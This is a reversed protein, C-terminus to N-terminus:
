KRAVTCNFNRTNVNKDVNVPNPKREEFDMVNKDKGFFEKKDVPKYIGYDFKFITNRDRKKNTESQTMATKAGFGKSSLDNSKSVSNSNNKPNMNMVISYESQVGLTKPSKKFKQSNKKMFKEYNNYSDKMHMPNTSYNEDINRTRIRSNDNIKTYYIKQSKNNEGKIRTLKPKMKLRILFPNITNFNNERNFTDM